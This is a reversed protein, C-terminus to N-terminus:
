EAIMYIDMRIPLFPLRPWWSPFQSIQPPKELSFRESLLASADIPKKGKILNSVFAPNITKHIQRQARIQWIATGNNHFDPSNLSTIYLTNEQASYGEPLVSDLNQSTMAEMEQWPIILIEYKVRLQLSLATAPQPQPPNYEEQMIELSLPADDLIIDRPHYSARCEALATQWLSDMLKKSISQYDSEIPAVGQQEQGGSVAQLNTVALYLSLNGEINTISGSPLNGSVGPDLARIPVAINAGAEAAISAEETTRFRVPQEGTTRVITNEPITIAQDSLNTFVAEGEASQVPINISGTPTIEKRGEVTVSYIEAPLTGTISYTSIAPDLNVKLEIQQSTTEPALSIKASPILSIALIILSFISLGFAIFRITPNIIKKNNRIVRTNRRVKDIAKIPRLTKTEPSTPTEIQHWPVQQAMRLSPFVPMGLDNACEVIRPHRSIIAIQTGSTQSYRQLLKFDLRRKINPRRNPFVLLVLDSHAWDIKDQVSYLDDFPEVHLIHTKM